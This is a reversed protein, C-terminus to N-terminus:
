SRPACIRDFKIVVFVNAKSGLADRLGARDSKAGSEVDQYIRLLQLDHSTCYAVIVARQAELSLGDDAQMTTSVRVYGVATRRKKALSPDARRRDEHDHKPLIPATPVSAADM